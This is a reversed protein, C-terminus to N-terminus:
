RKVLYRRALLALGRLLGPEEALLEALEAEIAEPPREADEPWALVNDLEATLALVRDHHTVAVAVDRAEDYGFVGLMTDPRALTIGDGTRVPATVFVAYEAPGHEAWAFADFGEPMDDHKNTEHKDTQSM